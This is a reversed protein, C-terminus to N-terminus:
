YFHVKSRQHVRGFGRSARMAAKGVASEFMAGRGSAQQLDTFNQRPISTIRSIAGNAIGDIFQDFIFTPITFGNSKPKLSVTLVMEKGDEAPAPSVVFTSLDDTWVVEGQYMDDSLDVGTVQDVICRRPRDDYKFRLLKSLAAGDPLPLTYRTKGIESLVPDLTRKWVQTRACFEIAAERLYFLVMSAPAGNVYPMVRPFADELRTFDDM